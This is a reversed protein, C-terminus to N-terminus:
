SIHSPWKDLICSFLNAKSMCLVFKGVPCYLLTLWLVDFKKGSQIRNNCENHRTTLITALNKRFSVPYRRLHQCAKCTVHRQPLCRITQCPMHPTSAYKYIGLTKRLSGQLLEANQHSSKISVRRSFWSYVLLSNFSAKM